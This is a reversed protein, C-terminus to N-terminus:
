SRELFCKKETCSSQFAFILQCHIPVTPRKPVPSVLSVEIIKCVTVIEGKGVSGFGDLLVVHCEDLPFVNRVSMLLAFVLVNGSASVPLYSSMTRAVNFM